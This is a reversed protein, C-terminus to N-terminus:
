RESFAHSVAVYIPGTLYQLLSQAGTIIDAQVVMGSTIQHTVGLGAIEPRDLVIRGKFYTVGDAGTFSTPSIGVLRGAITGYRRADFGSVTVKAIQGENVHGIEKPDIQVEAVVPEDIPVITLLVDAPSVVAGPTHINLDHIVGTVPSVVDLRTVRDQLRAINEHIEASEAIVQSLENLSHSRETVGLEFLENEAEQIAAEAQDASVLAETYAGQVRVLELQATILNVRSGHGSEFLEDRMDVTEQVLQLQAKLSTAQKIFIDTSKKRQRIRSEIIARQGDLSQRTASLAFRAAKVHIPYQEELDGFSMDKDDIFSRLRIERIKLSAQRAKIQDLEAVRSTEEFRLLVDGAQVLNGDKVNIERVIGGELHQVIQEHGSPVVEGTTLASTQVMVINTWTVSGAILGIILLIAILNMRSPAVEELVAEHTLYRMQDRPIHAIMQKAADGKSSSPMLDAANPKSIQNAM